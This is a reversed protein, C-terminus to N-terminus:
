YMMMWKEGNTAVLTSDMDIQISDLSNGKEYRCRTSQYRDKGDNSKKTIM